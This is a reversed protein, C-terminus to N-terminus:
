PISKKANPKVMADAFAQIIEPDQKEASVKLYLSLATHNSKNTASVDIDTKLLTLMLKKDKLLVARHLLTDGFYSLKTLSDTDTKELISYFMNFLKSHDKNPLDKTGILKSLIHHLTSETGITESDYYALSRKFYMNNPNAGGKLLTDVMLDNNKLLEHYLLSNIQHQHASQSSVHSYSACWHNHPIIHRPISKPISKFLRLM